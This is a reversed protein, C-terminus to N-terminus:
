QRTTHTTYAATVGFIKWWGFVYIKKENLDVDNLIQVEAILWWLELPRFFEDFDSLYTSYMCNCDLTFTNQTRTKWTKHHKIYSNVIAYLLANWRRFFDPHLWCLSPSAFPPRVISLFHPLTVNWHCVCVCVGVLHVMWDTENLLM